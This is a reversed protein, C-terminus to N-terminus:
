HSIHYPGAWTCSAKGPSTTRPATHFCDSCALSYCEIVEVWNGLTTGKTGARIERCLLSCTALIIGLQNQHKKVVSPVRFSLGQKQSRSCAWANTSSDWDLQLSVATLHPPCCGPLLPFGAVGGGSRRLVGVMHAPSVVPLCHWQGRSGSLERACAHMGETVRPLPIM